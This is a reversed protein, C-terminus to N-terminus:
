LQHQVGVLSTRGFLRSGSYYACRLEPQEFTSSPDNQNVLLSFSPSSALNSPSVVRSHRTCKSNSSCDYNSNGKCELLPIEGECSEGTPPKTSRSHLRFGLFTIIQTLILYSKELNVTFGLSALLSVAMATHSQAEQYPSGLNSLRGSLPDYPCGTQSSISSSTKFNQRLDKSCYKLWFLPRPLRLM